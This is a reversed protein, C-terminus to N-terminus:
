EWYPCSSSMTVATTHKKLFEEICTRCEDEHECVNADREGKSLDGPCVGKGVLFGALYQPEIPFNITYTTKSMIKEGGKFGAKKSLSGSLLSSIAARVLSGFKLIM